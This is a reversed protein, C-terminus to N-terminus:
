MEDYTVNDQVDVAIFVVDCILALDGVVDFYTPNNASSHQVVVDAFSHLVVDDGFSNWVM